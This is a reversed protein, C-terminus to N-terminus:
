YDIIKFLDRNKLGDKLNSNVFQEIVSREVSDFCHWEIKNIGEALGSNLVDIDKM